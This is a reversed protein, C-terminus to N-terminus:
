IADQTSTINGDPAPKEYIVVMASAFGLIIIGVLVTILLTSEARRETFARWLDRIRTRRLIRAIRVLRWLRFLRFAPLAPLSGLFDMWGWKIYGLKDPARILTRFFDFMFVISILTDVFFAIEKADDPIGPVYFIVITVLSILTLSLIFVDYTSSNYQGDEDISSDTKKVDKQDAM